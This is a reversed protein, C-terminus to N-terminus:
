TLLSSERGVLQGTRYLRERAACFQRFCSNEGGAVAGLDVAMLCGFCGIPHKVPQAVVAAKGLGIKPSRDICQRIFLCHLVGKSDRRPEVRHDETFGLNEALHFLRERRCVLCAGSPFNEVSEKLLGEFHGFLDAGIRGDAGVWYGDCEGGDIKRPMNKGLQTFLGHEQDARSFGVFQDGTM